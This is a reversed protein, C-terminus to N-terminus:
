RKAEFFLAKSRCEIIVEPSLNQKASYKLATVRHTSCKPKVTPNLLSLTQLVLSIHSDTEKAYSALSLLFQSNSETALKNFVCVLGNNSQKAYSLLDIMQLRLAESLSQDGDKDPETNPFLVINTKKPSDISEQYDTIRDDIHSM